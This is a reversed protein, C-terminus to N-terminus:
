SELFFTKAHTGMAHHGTHGGTHKHLVFEKIQEWSVLQSLDLSLEFRLYFQLEMFFGVDWGDTQECVWWGGDTKYGLADPRTVPM